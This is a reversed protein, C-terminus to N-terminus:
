RRRNPDRPAGGFIFRFVKELDSKIVYLAPTLILIVLTAFLIGFGLSLAMPILFRASISTEFIIPALGFFTTL